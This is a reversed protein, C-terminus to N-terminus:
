KEPIIFDKIAEKEDAGDLLNKLIEVTTEQVDWLTEAKPIDANKRIQIFNDKIKKAAENFENITQTDYVLKKFDSPFKNFHGLKHSLFINRKDIQGNQYFRDLKSFGQFLESMQSNSMELLQTLNKTLNNKWSAEMYLFPIPNNSMSKQIMQSLSHDGTILSLKNSTVLLDQFLAEPITELEIVKIPCNINPENKYNARIHHLGLKNSITKVGEKIEDNPSMTFIYLPKELHKETKKIIKLYATPTHLSSSYAIAHDSNLFGEMNKMSHHTEECIQELIKQKKPPNKLKTKMKDRLYIGAPVSGRNTYFGFGTNITIGKYGSSPKDYENIEILAKTKNKMEKTREDNVPCIAILPKDDKPSYNRTSGFIEEYKQKVELNPFSMRAPIKNKQLSEKIARGAIIDGFGGMECLPIVVENKM